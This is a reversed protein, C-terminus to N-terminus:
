YVHVVRRTERDILVRKGNLMAYGYGPYAPVETFEVSGPLEAGVALDGSFDVGASNQKEIWIDIERRCEENFSNFEGPAQKSCSGSKSTNQNVSGTADNGGGTGTASGAGNGGNEGSSAGGGNNGGNDSQAFSVGPAAFLFLAAAAVALYKM